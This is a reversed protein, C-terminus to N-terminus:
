QLRCINPRLCSELIEVSSYSNITHQASCLVSSSFNSHSFARSSATRSETCFRNLKLSPPCCLGAVTVTLSVGHRHKIETISISSSSSCTHNDTIEAMLQQGGAFCCPTYNRDHRDTQRDTQWVILKSLRPTPLECICM